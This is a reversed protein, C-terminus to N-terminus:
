VMESPSSTSSSKKARFFVFYCNGSTVLTDDPAIKDVYGHIRVYCTQLWSPSVNERVEAPHIMLM